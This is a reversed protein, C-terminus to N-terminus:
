IFATVSAFRLRSAVSRGIGSDDRTKGPCRRRGRAGRLRTPCRRTQGVLCLRDGLTMSESSSLVSFAKLVVPALRGGAGEVSSYGGKRDRLCVLVRRVSVRDTRGSSAGKCTYM